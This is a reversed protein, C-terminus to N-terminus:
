PKPTEKETGAEEGQHHVMELHRGEMEVIWFNVDFLRMVPAVGFQKLLNAGEASTLGNKSLFQIKSCGKVNDYIVALQHPYGSICSNIRVEISRKVM